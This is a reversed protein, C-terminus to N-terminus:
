EPTGELYPNPPTTDSVPAYVGGHGTAWLRYMLDKNFSEEAAAQITRLMSQNQQYLNLMALAAVLVTWALVLLPFIWRIRSHKWSGAGTSAQM